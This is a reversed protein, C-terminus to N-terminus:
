RTTTRSPLPPARGAVARLLVPRPRHGAHDDLAPRWARPAAAQAVGLVALLLLTLAPARTAATRAADVVGGVETVVAGGARGEDEDAGARPAGVVLAAALLVLGLVLHLLPSRRPM